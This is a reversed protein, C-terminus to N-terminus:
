RADLFLGAHLDGDLFDFAALTTEGDLRRDVDDLLLPLLGVPAHLLPGAQGSEPPAVHRAREHLQVEGVVHAALDGLVQDGVDVALREGLRLM